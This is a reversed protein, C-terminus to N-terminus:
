TPSAARPRMLGPRRREVNVGVLRQRPGLEEDMEWTLRTPGVNLTVLYTPVRPPSCAPGDRVSGREGLKM